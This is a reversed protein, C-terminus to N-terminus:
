KINMIIKWRIEMDFKPQRLNHYLFKLHLDDLKRDYPIKSFISNYYGTAKTHLAFLDDKHINLEM